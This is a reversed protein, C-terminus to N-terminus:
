LEKQRNDHEDNSRDYQANYKNTVIVSEFTVFLCNEVTKSYAYRNDCFNSYIIKIEAPRALNVGVVIDNV